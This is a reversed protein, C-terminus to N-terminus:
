RLAECCYRLVVDRKDTSFPVIWGTLWGKKAQFNDRHEINFGQGKLEISKERAPQLMIDIKLQQKRPQVYVYLTKKGTAGLYGLYRNKPNWTERLEPVEQALRRRLWSLLDPLTERLGEAIAGDTLLGAQSQVLDGGRKRSVETQTAASLSPSRKRIKEAPPELGYGVLLIDQLPFPQIEAVLCCLRSLYKFSSERTNGSIFRDVRNDTPVIFAGFYRTSSHHKRCKTAYMQMKLIDLEFRSNNGKEIELCVLGSDGEDIVLDSEFRTNESVRDNRRVTLGPALARLKREVTSDFNGRDTEHRKLLLPLDEPAISRVAQCIHDRLTPSFRAKAGITESLTISQVHIGM